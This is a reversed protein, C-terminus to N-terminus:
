NRVCELSSAISIQLKVGALLFTTLLAATFSLLRFFTAFVFVLALALTLGRSTLVLGLFALRRFRLLWWTKLVGNWPWMRAGRMVGYFLFAFSFGDLQLKVLDPKLLVHLHMLWHTSPAVDVRWRAESWRSLMLPSINQVAYCAKKWQFLINMMPAKTSLFAYNNNSEKLLLEVRLWILMKM